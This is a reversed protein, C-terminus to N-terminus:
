NEIASRALVNMVIAETKTRACRFKQYFYLQILKSACDNSRFSLNGQITHYAWIGEAATINLDKTSPANTKKFFSLMSSSSASAHDANKHKISRLHQEIDAASSQSVSFETRCKECRVDM